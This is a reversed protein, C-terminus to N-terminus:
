KNITGGTRKPLSVNHSSVVMVTHLMGVCHPTRDRFTTAVSHSHPICGQQTTGHTRSANVNPLLHIANVKTSAITINSHLSSQLPPSFINATPSQAKVMFM